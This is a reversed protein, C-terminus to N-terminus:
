VIIFLALILTWLCYMNTKIIYHLLYIDSLEVWSSGYSIKNFVWKESTQLFMCKSHLLSGSRNVLWVSVSMQRNSLHTLTYMEDDRCQVFLQTVTHLQLCLRRKFGCFPLSCRETKTTNMSEMWKMVFLSGYWEWSAEIYAYTRRGCYSTM